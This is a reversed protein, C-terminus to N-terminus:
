CRVHWKTTDGCGLTTQSSKVYGLTAQKPAMTLSSHLERASSWHLPPTTQYTRRLAISFTYRPFFHDKVCLPRIATSYLSSFRLPM